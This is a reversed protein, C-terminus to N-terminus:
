ANRGRCRARPRAAERGRCGRRLPRPASARVQPERPLRVARARPLIARPTALHGSHDLAHLETALRFAEIARRIGTLEALADELVDRLFGPLRPKAVLGHQDVFVPEHRELRLCPCEEYSFHFLVEEAVPGRCRAPEDIGRRLRSVM